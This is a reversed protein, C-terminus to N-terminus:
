MGTVKSKDQFTIKIGGYWASVLVAAFFLLFPSERDILPILLLKLLLAIAVALVAVGYHWRARSRYFESIYNM